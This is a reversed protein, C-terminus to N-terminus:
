RTFDLAAEEPRFETDFINDTGVQLFQIKCNTDSGKGTLRLSWGGTGTHSAVYSFSKDDKPCKM